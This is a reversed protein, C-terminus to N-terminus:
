KFALRFPGNVNRYDSPDVPSDEQIYDVWRCGNNKVMDNINGVTNKNVYCITNNKTQALTNSLVANYEWMQNELFKSGYHQFIVYNERDGDSSKVVGDNNSADIAYGYTNSDTVVRLNNANIEYGNVDNYERIAAITDPTLYYSYEPTNAYIHEGQKEIQNLALNGKNTNYKAGNYTFTSQESWNTPVIANNDGYQSAVDGLSVTSPIIKLTGTGSGLTGENSSAYSYKSASGVLEINDASVENDVHTTIKSGCCLCIDEYIEYFCTRTNGTYISDDNGMIRGLKNSNDNYYGIDKFSYTYQYLNRPTTLSVPFVNSTDGYMLTWQSKSNEDKKYLLSSSRANANDIASDLNDGHEKIDSTTNMYWNGKNRYFSSNGIYASIYHADRYKVKVTYCQGDVWGNGSTQPTVGVFTISYDGNNDKANYYKNAYKGATCFVVDKIVYDDSSSTNKSSYNNYEPTNKAWPGDNYYTIKTDNRKLEIDSSHVNGYKDYANMKTDVSRDNPSNSYYDSMISENKDVDEVIVNDNGLLTMFSDEDYKYSATPNFATDIKVESVAVGLPNYGADFGQGKDNPTSTNYLYFNQCAYLDKTYKNVNLYADSMNKQAENAAYDTVNRVREVIKDKALRDNKGDFNEFSNARGGISRSDDGTQPDYNTLYRCEIEASKTPDQYETFTCTIEDNRTYSVLQEKAVEGDSTYRTYEIKNTLKYDYYYVERDCILDETRTFSCLDGDPNYGQPCIKKDKDIYGTTVRNSCRSGDWNLYQCKYQYCGSHETSSINGNSVDKYTTSNNAYKNYAEVIKGSEDRIDDMYQDTNIYSSYCTREGSIFMDNNIAFSSGAAIAKVGVYNGFSDMSIAWDEKCTVQCYRNDKYTAINISNGNDDTKEFSSKNSPSYKDTVNAICAGIQEKYEGNEYKTGEKIIYLETSGQNDAKWRCVNTFTSTTCEDATKQIFPFYLKAEEDSANPTFVLMRQFNAIGYGGDKEDARLIYASSYSINKGDVLVKFSVKDKDAATEPVKVNAVDTVDLRVIYNYMLNGDDDTDGSYTPQKVVICRVGAVGCSSTDLTIDKGAFKETVIISGEYTVSYSNSGTSEYTPNSEGDSSNKPVDNRVFGSVNVSNSNNKLAETGGERIFKDKFKGLEAIIDEDTVGLGSGDFRNGNIKAAGFYASNERDKEGDVGIVEQNWANSGVTVNKDFFVPAVDKYTQHWYMQNKIGTYTESARNDMIWALRTLIQATVFKPNQGDKFDPSPYGNSDYYFNNLVYNLVYKLYTDGLEDLTYEVTYFTNYNISGLWNPSLQQEELCLSDYETYESTPRDNGDVNFVGNDPVCYAHYKISNGVRNSIHFYDKRHELNARPNINYSFKFKTCSTTVTSTGNSTNKNETSGKNPKSEVKFDVNNSLDVEFASSGNQSGSSASVKVNYNITEGKDTVAFVKASFEGNTDKLGTVQCEGNVFKADVIGPSNSKCSTIIDTASSFVAVKGLYINRTYGDSDVTSSTKVVAKWVSGDLPVTDGSQKHEGKDSEWYDLEKKKNFGIFSLQPLKVETKNSGVYYYGMGIVKQWDQPDSVNAETAIQITPKAEYCAFYSGTSDATTGSVMGSCSENLNTINKNQETPVWGKFELPYVSNEGSCTPFTANGKAQYYPHHHNSSDVWDKAKWVSTDIKCLNTDGPYIVAGGFEDPITIELTTKNTVGNEEYTLLAKGQVTNSINSRNIKITTGDVSLAGSANDTIEIKCNSRNQCYGDLTTKQGANISVTREIVNNDETIITKGSVNIEYNWKLDEKKGGLKYGNCSFSFTELGESATRYKIKWNSGQGTIEFHTPDPNECSTFYYKDGFSLSDGPNLPIKNMAANVYCLSIVFSACLVLLYNFIRKNNKM